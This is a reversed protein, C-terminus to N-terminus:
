VMTLVGCMLQYMAVAGIVTLIDFLLVMGMVWMKSRSRDLRGGNSFACM